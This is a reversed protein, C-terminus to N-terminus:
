RLIYGISMSLSLHSGYSIDDVKWRLERFIRLCVLNGSGAMVCSLSLSVLCICMEVVHRLSKDLVFGLKIIPKNDRFSYCYICIYSIFLIISLEPYRQTVETKSTSYRYGDCGRRIDRCLNNWYWLLVRRDFM